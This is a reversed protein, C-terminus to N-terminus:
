YTSGYIDRVKVNATGPLASIGAAFNRQKAQFLCPQAFRGAAANGNFAYFGAAGGGIMECEINVDRVSQTPHAVYVGDEGIGEGLAGRVYVENNTLTEIAAGGGGDDTEDIRIMNRRPDQVHLGNIQLNDAGSIYVGDMCSYQTNEQRQVSLGNFTGKRIQQLMFGEDNFGPVEAAGGNYVCDVLQVNSVQVNTFSGGVAGTFMKFGTQGSRYVQAGNVIIGISVQEANRTGGFRVGHEGSDFVQANAMLYDKVGEHLIGNHGPDELANASKTKVYPNLLRAGALNRLCVGTVYSEVRIDEFHNDVGPDGDGDAGYAFFAKDINKIRLGKVKNNDRYIRVAWDLLSGGYNNIQSEAIIENDFWKCDTESGILRRFTSAAVIDLGMGQIESGSNFQLFLNSGGGLLGSWRFRAGDMMLRVGAPLTQGIATTRYVDGKNGKLTRVSPNANLYTILAALAADNAAATGDGGTRDFWDRLNVTDSWRARQTRNLSSSGWLKTVWNDFWRVVKAPTTYNTDDTGADANGDTAKLGDHIIRRWPGFTVGDLLSSRLAWDESGNNGKWMDWARGAGGFMFSVTGGFTGPFNSSGATNTSYGFGNASSAYGGGAGADADIVNAVFKGAVVAASAAADAASAAAAAQAAEAAAVIAASAQDTLLRFSTGNDVYTIMMGATLGGPAIQNGSNTLLAKATAGNESITVNGANAEFVNAVRLVSVSTPISSTLQIANPTGAGVDVLKVFSYPLDAIRTWSGAGSVGVKMYVGNYATTSDGIVWASSNAAHALDAFLSARSTYVLGGNGLFAAIVGEIWTGWDRILPKIPQSPDSSPGDAFITSALEVM